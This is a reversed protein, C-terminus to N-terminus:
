SCRHVQEHEQFMEPHSLEAIRENPIGESVRM